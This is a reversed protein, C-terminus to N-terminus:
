APRIMQSYRRYAAKLAEGPERTDNWSAIVAEADAATLVWPEGSPPNTFGAQEAALEIDMRSAPASEAVPVTCAEQSRAKSHIPNTVM